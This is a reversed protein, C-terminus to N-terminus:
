VKSVPPNGVFIKGKRSTRKECNGIAEDPSVTIDGAEVLQVTDEKAKTEHILLLHLFIVVIYEKLM